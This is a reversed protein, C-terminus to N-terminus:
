SPSTKLLVIGKNGDVTVIQGDKIVKTGFKVNVVAPIGYERAVVSGHSLLGGLDTVVAGATIFLPTWGPDTFPAVLIEGKELRANNPDIVVRAKGTVKGPSTGLGTLIDGKIQELESFYDEPTYDGVIVDPPHIKEFRQFEERREKVLKPITELNFEQAAIRALEEIELFFVDEIEGLIGRDKLIRGISVAIKKFVDGAMVVYFRLYERQLTLKQTNKRLYDFLFKKWPFIRNWYGESLRNIIDRTAAERTRRQAEQLRIPNVDEGAIIYSRITSFVFSPNERWKPTSIEMERPSRVGYEDMFFNLAELFDRAQPLKELKELVDKSESNIIVDKVEPNREALKSLKWIEVSPQASKMGELGTIMLNRLRGDDGLHKNLFSGLLAYYTFQDTTRMYITFADAVLHSGEAFSSLLEDLDKLKLDVSDLERRRRYLYAVFERADKDLSKKKRLEKIIGIMVRPILILTSINLIKIKQPTPIYEIESQHGGMVADYASKFLRYGPMGAFLDYIFAFNFYVRGCIRKIIKDFGADVFDLNTLGIGRLFNKATYVAVSFFFSWTLPSAVGPLAEGVNANTWIDKGKVIRKKKQLTTIPRSQLIYFRGERLAWEIDQPSKYHAEIKKGMKSLEIIEKDTLVHANREHEPIELQLTGSGAEPNRIIKLKKESINKTKIASTAKDFIYNDPSVLGSVIAEGLGYSADIAMENRNGTVPNATFMIGSKESNVMEQVVVSLYVKTHDFRNKERYQIARDTWLSAWCQKIKDLLEEKGKICLYTDQQGAFSAEPLDEATASSRVAVYPLGRGKDMAKYANVIATSIDDPIKEQLIINRISLAKIKIDEADDYDIERLIKAINEQTKRSLLKKYANSTICFGAPIPFGARTMEGLNAGKGGVLNVDDKSIEDFRLIYSSM